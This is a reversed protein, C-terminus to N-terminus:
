FTFKVKHFCKKDLISFLYVFPLLIVHFKTSCDILCKDDLGCLSYSFRSSGFPQLHLIQILCKCDLVAEWLSIGFTHRYALRNLVPIPPNIYIIEGNKVDSFKLGYEFKYLIFKLYFLRKIMTNYKSINIFNGM